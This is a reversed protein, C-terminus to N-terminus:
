SRACFGGRSMWLEIVLYDELCPIVGLKLTILIREGHDKGIMWADGLFLTAFDGLTNARKNM